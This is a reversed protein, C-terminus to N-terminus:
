IHILSLILAEGKAGNANTRFYYGDRGRSFPDILIFFYDDGRVPADRQMVGARIKDPQSDFCRVGVYLIKADRCLRVETKETEAMGENPRRQIFGKVVPLEAWCSDNLSGDLVPTEQVLNVEVRPSEDARLALCLCM